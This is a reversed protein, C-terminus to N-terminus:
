KKPIIAISRLTGKPVIKVKLDIGLAKAHKKATLHSRIVGNTIWTFKSGKEQILYPMDEEEQPAPGEGAKVRKWEAPTSDEVTYWSIGPMEFEKALRYQEDIGDPGVGPANGDTFSQVAPFLPPKRALKDSENKWSNMVAIWGTRIYGAPKSPRFLSPYIMPVFGDVHKSLEIHYHDRLRGIRIDTAAFLPSDPKLQRFRKCFQDAIGPKHEWVGEANLCAGAAGQDIAWSLTEAERRPQAPDGFLEGIVKLGKSKSKGAMRRFQTKRASDAGVKLFLGVLNADVARQIVADEGIQAYNWAWAWKGRLLDSRAM